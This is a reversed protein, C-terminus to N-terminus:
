RIIDAIRSWRIKTKGSLVDYIIIYFKYFPVTNDWSWYIILAKGVVDKRPLMGWYRSDQSSDRNDGMMFMHNEPVKYPGWNDRNFNAGPPFIGVPDHMGKEMFSDNFKAKPPNTFIEGDVYLVKDKIEVVQGGVAVCRKIYDLSRDLPYKFVIVDGPKPERIAPLRWDTFPIKSGYIVKNVLLFDGILLTDEMSGTPIKFAQIFLARIILAAVVAVIISETWERPTSKKSDGIENPYAEELLLRNLRILGDGEPKKELLKKTKKTLEVQMFREEDYLNEVKLLQNLKDVLSKKLADPPPQSENYADLLKQSKHSLQERIYQSLPDAANHLKVAFGAPNKLNGIQFLPVSSKKKKKKTVKM